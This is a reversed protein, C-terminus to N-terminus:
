SMEICHHSLWSVRLFVRFDLEPNVFTVTLMKPKLQVLNYIYFCGYLLEGAQYIKVLSLNM